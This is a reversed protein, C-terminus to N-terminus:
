SSRGSEQAAPTRAARNWLLVASFIVVPFLSEAITPAHRQQLAALLTVAASLAVIPWLSPLVMAALMGSMATLAVLDLTMVQPLSLGLILGVLRLGVVQAALVLGNVIMGRHFTNRLLMHRFRFALSGLCLFFALAVIVMSRMPEIGLWRVARQALTSFVVFAFLGVTVRRREGPAAAPDRAEDFSLATLLERMSPFRDEPKTSLGRLLAAHVPAAVKSAPPRPLIKGKVINYRLSTVTKGVFPLQAYLAEYLAVCFSFQDSRGDVPEGLHQEPSMYLPTGVAVGEHTLGPLRPTTSALELSEEAVLDQAAIPGGAPPGGM